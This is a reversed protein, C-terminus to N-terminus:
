DARAVEDPAFFLKSVRIHKGFKRFPLTHILHDAAGISLGGYRRVDDRSLWDPLSEYPTTRTVRSRPSRAPM